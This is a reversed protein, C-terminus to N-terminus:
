WNDRLTRMKYFLNRELQDEDELSNLEQALNERLEDSKLRLFPNVEREMGLTVARREDVDEKNIDLLLERVKENDPELSHAFELNKQIYDHGPYLITNDPLKNLLNQTTAYLLEVKGGNRCNGVGANFLTDGSFLATPSNLSNLIFVQHDLTHGPTDLTELMHKDDLLLKESNLLKKIPAKFAEKLPLNGRIHDHHQHTNLIGQLSLSNKKIYEIYPTAEYPDIAWAKGTSEDVILYSFNRLENHAYFKKVQIM